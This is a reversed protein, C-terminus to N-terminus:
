RAQPKAPQQGSLIDASVATTVAALYGLPIAFIFPGAPFHFLPHGSLVDLLWKFNLLGALLFALALWGLPGRFRSPETLGFFVAMGLLLDYVLFTGLWISRDLIPFRDSLFVPGLVSGWLIFFM